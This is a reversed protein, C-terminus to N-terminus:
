GGECDPPRPPTRGGMWRRGPAQTGARLLDVKLLTSFLLAADTVVRERM